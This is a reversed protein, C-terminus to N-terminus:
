EARDTVKLRYFGGRGDGKVSLTRTEDLRKWDPTGVPEFPLAASAELAYWFGEYAKEAARGLKRITFRRKM